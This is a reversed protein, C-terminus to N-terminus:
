DLRNIFGVLSTLNLAYIFVNMGMAEEVRKWDEGKERLV